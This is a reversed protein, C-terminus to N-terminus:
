SKVVKKYLFTCFAELKLPKAGRVVWWPSQWQAGSPAGGGPPEAGLGGNLSASWASAVTGGKPM